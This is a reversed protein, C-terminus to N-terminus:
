CKVTLITLSVSIGKFLGSKVAIFSYNTLM